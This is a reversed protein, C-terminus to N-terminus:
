ALLYIMGCGEIYDWADNGHKNSDVRPHYRYAILDLTCKDCIIYKVDFESNVKWGHEPRGFPIKGM